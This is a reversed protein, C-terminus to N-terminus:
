ESRLSNAPNARAVRLSQSSITLFAVGFAILGTLAFIWWSLNIKYAFGELWGDMVLWGIPAAILFSFGVLRLIDKSFLNIITTTSAGLVKRVAIERVRQQASFMALGLLGLCSIVIAFVSFINSLKAVVQENNYLAQYESDAFQYDFPRLPNIKAYLTKLQALAEKTKGPKTRILVFGFNLNEKVDVIVPKIRQHLSATHYDELIGIIRGRKDWASVWKGLPDTIGMQRVAERNVMFADTSDSAIKKSFGRGEAIKLDMIRLFDFGVSKPMFGVSVGEGKGEWNIPDAVEFEMAHPAESSRDVLAVGPLRSAEDKFVAYKEANALTGEIRVYILNERDYGLNSHQVFDTQRSVVMAAILLLISLGFQFITLGKRLWESSGTFRFTGKLVQVPKLSSLFLAPYSGAFFGTFVILGLVIIWYYINHFPLAIEKGTFSNVLPLLLGALVVSVVVAFFSLLISELIFQRILHGKLSGVAKRVGVEKARKVSRATALNMYNICAIVLIFIAVGAFLKIYEMRGDVPKGNEFRGKLYKDKFPQLHAEMRIPNNPDLRTQLYTNINQAVQYPDATNSIQITSLVNHSAVLIGMKAYSEWDILFDFSLSSKTTLNEFVATVMLDLNNEYRITKGVANQPGDFFLEAMKRSIAITNIEGLPMSTDGAIIPYDFMEFFDKGARAGEMKYMRDGVEFTEPYGWPLEYGTVYFNSREIGDIGHQMGELLPFYRQQEADYNTPTAYTGDTKGESVVTYYVNYLTDSNGHFSDVAKEDQIWLFILLFSVMGLVLGLLNIISFAKNRIINRFGVILYNRLM